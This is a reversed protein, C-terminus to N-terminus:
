GEGRFASSGKNPDESNPSGHKQRRNPWSPWSKLPRAPCTTFCVSRRSGSGTSLGHCVVFGSSEAAAPRRRNTGSIHKSHRGYPRGSIRGYNEYIKLPKRPWSSKLVCEPWIMAQISRLMLTHVSVLLSLRPRLASRSARRPCTETDSGIISWYRRQISESVKRLVRGM